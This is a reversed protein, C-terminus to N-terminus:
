RRRGRKIRPSTDDDPDDPPQPSPPEPKLLDDSVPKHTDIIPNPNDEPKVIFASLNHTIATNEPQYISPIPLSVYPQKPPIFPTKSVPNTFASDFRRELGNLRLDKSLRSLKIESSDDAIVLGNGKKQLSFGLTALRAHLIDWTTAEDFATLLRDRQVRLAETTWKHKPQPRSNRKALQAEGDGPRKTKSKFTDPSNHRGPVFTINHKQAQTKLSQELRVWDQARNWAKFNLPHVRNIVVHVHRHRTDDHAIAIRQHDSLHLDDYVGNLISKMLADTPKESVPWSIVFHYVPAKCRRSHNATARMVRVAQTPDSTLLNGTETWLVRQGSADQRQPTKAHKKVPSNLLYRVLGSFGRGAKPVKGIM